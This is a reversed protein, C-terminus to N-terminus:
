SKKAESAGRHGRKPGNRLWKSAAFDTRSCNKVAKPVLEKIEISHKFQAQKRETHVYAFNLKSGGALLLGGVALLRCGVALIPVYNHLYEFLCDLWACAVLQIPFRLM